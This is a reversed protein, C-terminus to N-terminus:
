NHIFKWIFQGVQVGRYWKAMLMYHNIKNKTFNRYIKYLLVSLKTLYNLYNKNQKNLKLKRWMMYDYDYNM